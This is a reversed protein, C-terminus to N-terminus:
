AITFREGKKGFMMRPAKHQIRDISQILCASAPNGFSFLDSFEVSWLVFFCKFPLVNPLDRSIQLVYTAFSM